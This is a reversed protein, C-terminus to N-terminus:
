ISVFKGSLVVNAMKRKLEDLTLEHHRVPENRNLPYTRLWPM